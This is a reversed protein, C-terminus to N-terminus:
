CLEQLKWGQKTLEERVKLIYEVFADVDDDEALTSFADYMGDTCYHVGEIWEENKPYGGEEKNDSNEVWVEEPLNEEPLKWEKFIVQLLEEMAEDIGNEREFSIGAYAFKNIVREFKM